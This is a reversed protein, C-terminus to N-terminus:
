HPPGPPQAVSFAPKAYFPVITIFASKEVASFKPPLPREGYAPVFNENCDWGNRQSITRVGHSIVVRNKDHRRTMGLPWGVKFPRIGIWLLCYLEYDSIFEQM